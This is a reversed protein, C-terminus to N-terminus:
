TVGSFEAQKVIVKVSLVAGDVARCCNFVWLAKLPLVSTILAGVILM